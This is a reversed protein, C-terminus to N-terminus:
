EPSDSPTGRRGVARRLLVRASGYDFAAQFLYAVIRATAVGLAGWRVGTVTGALFLVAFVADAAAALWPHGSAFLFRHYPFFVALPIVTAACVAFVAWADAFGAGYARAIWPSAAVIGLAPVLSTAVNAALALRLIRPVERPRRSWTEAIMPMSVSGVLTPVFFLATFWQNAASYVGMQELGARGVLISACVWNAPTYISGALFTPLTFGPVVHWVPRVQWGARPLAAARCLTVIRWEGLGVQALYVLGLGAIAGDVGAFWAGGVICPISLLGAVVHITALERFAKFGQLVGTQAGQVAGLLVVFAGVRLPGAVAADHFLRTALLDSTGLITVAAVTGTSAALMRTLVVIRAADNARDSRYEAIFKTATQGLAHGAIVQLMLVTVHVIGFRGFSEVGVIRAVLLLALVSSGRLTVTGALM